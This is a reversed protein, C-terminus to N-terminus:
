PRQESRIGLSHILRHFHYVGVERQAFPGHEYFHSQIGQQVEECIDQDEMQVRHAVKISDEVTKVTVSEVFFYYFTCLSTTEDIPTVVNVDMFGDYLNIMINPFVWWYFADEGQRVLAVPDTSNSTMPGKQLSAWKYIDTKYGELKVAKALEPHLTPIHYGGDLYNDVFVKWNCKMQYDRSGRFYLGDWMSAPTQDEIPKLCSELTLDSPELKVFVFPGWETLPFEPLEKEEQKFHDVSEFEPAGALTGSLNYSWGHYRCRLRKANGKARCEVRAGRHRCVNSLARLSNQDDRLLILPEGAITTTVFDGPEELQESRAALQWHSRFISAQEQQFVQRNFYYRSPLAKAQDIPLDGDFM